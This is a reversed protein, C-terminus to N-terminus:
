PGAIVAIAQQAVLAHLAKTPHIGDWFAYTDPRRCAFPAEGPTICADSVNVFGYTEPNAVVENLMAFVDLVRVDVGPLAAVLGQVTVALGGNYSQALFGAFAAIGPFVRDIARVAPTKGVDAVNLVLFRRAGHLYLQTVSDALSTLAGQIYPTPDQGGLAAAILADRVDNGGIEIAVLTHASTQSSDSLYTAVQAPLNFRCPYAVARAGGVAYNSAGGASRFAPRANGALVLYRALGEVWNAGNSFHIGGRAYPGSPVLDELADYPPVNLPTGCGQNEPQSLWFFANGTDTLSAGFSVVRDIDSPQAGTPSSLLVLAVLSGSLTLRTFVHLLRM